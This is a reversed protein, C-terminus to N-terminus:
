NAMTSLLVGRHKLAQTQNYSTLVDRAEVNPILM